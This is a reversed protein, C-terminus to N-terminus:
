SQLPTPQTNAPTCGANTVAQQYDSFAQDLQGLYNQYSKSDHHESKNKTGLYAQYSQDYTKLANVYAMRDIEQCQNIPQAPVSVSATVNIGISAAAQRVVGLELQYISNHPLSAIGENHPHKHNLVLAMVLLALGIVTMFIQSYRNPSTQMVAM